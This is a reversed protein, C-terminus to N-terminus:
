YVINTPDFDSTWKATGVNIYFDDVYESGSVTSLQEKTANTTGFWSGIALRATSYVEADNLALTWILSGDVFFYLLTSSRTIAIHHWQTTDFDSPPTSRIVCGKTRDSRTISFYIKGGSYGVRIGCYARTANGKEVTYSQNVVTLTADWSISNTNGGWYAGGYAHGVFSAATKNWYSITFDSNSWIPYDTAPTKYLGGPDTSADGEITNHRYFAQGYVGTAYAVTGTLGVDNTGSSLISNNFHYLWGIPTSTGSPPKMGRRRILEGM